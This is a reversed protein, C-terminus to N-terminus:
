REIVSHWEAARDDIERQMQENRGDPAADMRDYLQAVTYGGIDAGLSPEVDGRGAM